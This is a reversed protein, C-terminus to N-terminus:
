CTSSPPLSFLPHSYCIQSRLFCKRAIPAKCCPDSRRPPPLPPESPLSDAPLTPSRSKIGSNPLDGPPCCLIGSWYEQRSFGWPCLLRPRHPPPPCSYDMPDCLTVGSQAVLCLLVFFVNLPKEPEGLQHAAALASRSRMATCGNWSHREAQGEVYLLCGGGSRGM